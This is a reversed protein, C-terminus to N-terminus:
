FAVKLYGNTEVILKKEVLNKIGRYKQARSKVAADIFISKKVKKKKIIIRLLYLEFENLNSLFSFSSPQLKDLEKFVQKLNQIDRKNFM